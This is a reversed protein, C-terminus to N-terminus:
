GHDDEEFTDAPEDSPTAARLRRSRRGTPIALLVTVVFVAGTGILIGLGIPTDAPGPGRPADAEELEAYHWLYGNATNGVPTLLRNGDLADTTRRTVVASERGSDSVLVFGIQLAQLEAAVDFGSRSALNGALTAIRVDNGSLTTSTAALTSQEDLTTGEGRHLTAALGGNALGTLELTGLGPRTAAEATTFAPLMRGSGEAVQSAGTAPAVLLPVIAAVSALAVVLAPVTARSRMAEIAAVVAGVLGLWYLSLGAGPWIPLAEAGMSAVSVHASAVATAFGLLAVALSIVALRSAHLFLSLLAVVALPLLLAAAVAPAAAGFGVADLGIPELGISELFAAWGNVSADPSGIALQWGVTTGGGVPVGPEAFVALLNGRRFQEVVLPAFLVAAPIPIGLLRHISSPRAIMWALWAVLLAPILAPACAAVVAFLLAAAASAPWSRAARVVALVLWPVLVHAIAAGLHGDALSVLFPPSVAWLVAAIGPAWPRESFRVATSWAALAALPLALLYFYVVSTSPAWFTISGLIAIVWAFPDSPGTFGSALDHWRLGVHSWLDSVSGSLPALGGGAVAPAGLLSGFAVLGVVAAILVAWAGGGTFFGPRHISPAVPQAFVESRERARAERLRHGTVRLPAIASWGVKRSRRLNRRAPTVWKDFAGRIGTSLEGPIAGPRKALAHGISRVVALPVLSLWHFPVAFAPAYVLRRHLQAARNVRNQKGVSVSKRGFLEPGGASAVRATPVGVVRHGALRARVCFDLAADVSPLGPDFGGLARWVERRVLMGGEAIALLDSNLDHQAQDIEGAVLSVSAGFRSMSQGYEAIVDPEGIRMLKPGAVAVSPAVEVAGLLAALATPEPANDHALLWLWDEPAPEPATTHVAHSVAAGFARAGSTTVFHTPGAESLLASTNDTSGADVFIVSDPRRTQAALGGITRELYDRGNRAVLIATVRPQM